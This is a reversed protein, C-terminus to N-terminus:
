SYNSLYRKRDNELVTPSESTQAFANCVTGTIVPIWILILFLFNAQYSSMEAGVRKPFCRAMSSKSCYGLYLSLCISLLTIEIFLLDSALNKFGSCENLFKPATDLNKDTQPGSSLDPASSWRIM